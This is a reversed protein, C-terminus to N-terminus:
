QTRIIQEFLGLFLFQEKTTLSFSCGVFPPRAHGQLRRTTSQRSTSTIRVVSLVSRVCKSHGIVTVNTTFALVTYVCYASTRCWLLVDNQVEADLRVIPSLTERNQLEAREDTADRTRLGFTQKGLRQNQQPQYRYRVSRAACRGNM